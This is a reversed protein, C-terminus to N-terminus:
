RVKVTSTGRQLRDFTSVATITADGSARAVVNGTPSVTAVTTDSSRWTASFDTVCGTATVTATYNFSQGPLFEAHVPTVHVGTVAPKCPGPTPEVLPLKEGCSTVAGALVALLVRGVLRGCGTRIRVTCTMAM